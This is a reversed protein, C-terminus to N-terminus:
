GIGDLSGHKELQLQIPGMVGSDIVKRLSSNSVGPGDEKSAAGPFTHRVSAAFNAWDTCASTAPFEKAVSSPPPDGRTISAPWMSSIPTMIVWMSSSPNRLKSVM